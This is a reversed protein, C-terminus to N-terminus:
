PLGFVASASYSTLRPLGPEPEQYRCRRTLTITTGSPSSTVNVDDMLQSMLYFGRGSTTDLEPPALLQDRDFAFGPGDDIVEVKLTKGMECRVRIQAEDEPGAGHRYANGVAETVALLIDYIEDETIAYSALFEAVGERAQAACSPNRALLFERM